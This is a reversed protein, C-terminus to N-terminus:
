NFGFSFNGKVIVSINGEAYGTKSSGKCTYNGGLSPTISSLKLIAEFKHNLPIIVQFGKNPLKHGDKYWTVQPVLNGIFICQIEVDSGKEAIVVPEAVKVTLPIALGLLVLLM